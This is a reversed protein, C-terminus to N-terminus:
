ELTLWHVQAATRNCARLVFAALASPPTLDSRRELVDLYESRSASFLTFPIVVIDRLLINLLLRVTRGNGNAFPHILLFESFFFSGLRLAFRVREDPDTPASGRTEAVFELLAELRSVIRQHRAYVVSSGRAGVNVTRFEGARELLGDMVVAHLQRVEGVGVAGSVPGRVVFMELAQRINCLKRWTRENIHGPRAGGEVLSDAIAETDIDGAPPFEGVWVERVYNAILIPELEREAGVKHAADRINQIMLTISHDSEGDFNTRDFTRQLYAKM